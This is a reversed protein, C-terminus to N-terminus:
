WNICMTRSMGTSANYPSLTFTNTRGCPVDITSASESLREPMTRAPVRATRGHLHPHEGADEHERKDHEGSFLHVLSHQHQKGTDDAQRSASM